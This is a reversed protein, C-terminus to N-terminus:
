QFWGVVTDWVGRFWEGISQFLGTSEEQTDTEGSQGANSPTAPDTLPLPETIGEVTLLFQVSGNENPTTCSFSTYGDSLEMLADKRSLATDVKSTEEVIKSLGDESLSKLGKTLSNLGKVIAAVGEQLTVGNESLTVLGDALTRLGKAFKGIAVALQGAGSDLQNAGDALQDIGAVLADLQKLMDQVEKTSVISDRIAQATKQDITVKIEDLKLGSAVAEAVAEKQEPTMPADKLSDLVSQKVAARISEANDKLAKNIADEIVAITADDVPANPDAIQDLKKKAEDLQGALEDIADAIQAAGAAIDKSAKHIEDAGNTAEVAGDAAQTVGDLYEALGEEFTKAGSTLSRAGKYLKGSAEGIEDLASILEGIDNIGSLDNEDVIGTMGIFMSDALEFNKVDAELVFSDKVEEGEEIDLSEKLGPLLVSLVTFQGAQASVKAGQAEIATFRDGLTMMCIVSFPVYLEMPEGDVDVTRKLNNKTKVEIRIRGSKGAIEEPTMKRSNLFYSIEVSFPLEGVGTGQYCVDEGETSFTVKEGEIVPSESGSVNKIDRLTSYDTITDAGAPNSIYVSSVISQVNGSPDTEIYVTEGRSGTEAGEASAFSFIVSILMVGIFAIALLLCILRFQKKM